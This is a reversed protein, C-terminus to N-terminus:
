TQTIVRVQNVLDQDSTLQRLQAVTDSQDFFHALKALLQLHQTHDREPVILSAIIDVAQGDISDYDIPTSLSIWCMLPTSLGPLRCHPIAIGKGLGTSGLRERECFGDFVDDACLTNNLDPVYLEALYDLLRKKSPLNRKAQTRRLSILTTSSM